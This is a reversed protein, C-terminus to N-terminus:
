SNEKYLNELENVEIVVVLIVFHLLHYFQKCSLGTHKYNHCYKFLIILFVPQCYGADYHAKKFLENLFPQM